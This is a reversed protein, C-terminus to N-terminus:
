LLRPPRKFVNAFRHQERLVSVLNKCIRPLLNHRCVHVTRASPMSTHKPSVAMFIYVPASLHMERLSSRSVLWCLSSVPCPRCPHVIRPSTESVDGPKLCRFEYMTTKAQMVGDHQMDLPITYLFSCLSCLLPCFHLQFLVHTSGKCCVFLGLSMYSFHLRTVYQGLM